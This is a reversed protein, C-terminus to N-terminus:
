RPLGVHEFLIRKLEEVAAPDKYSSHDSPVILESAAGEQHSSWYDVVGDSSDPSDGKGRDGIISHYVVGPLYPSADLAAIMPAGPRLSQAGTYAGKRFTRLAPSTILHPDFLLHSTTVVDTPLKAARSLLAAFTKEAMTAGRHPTSFFVARRVAPDPDFFLTERLREKRTPEIRLQDFPTPVEFQEWLRDGIDAVLTHALIGGMSHGVVVMNRSLPDDGEPDLHARLEALQERLLASSEAIPYGSPYAFVMFQYRESLDPESLMHPVIDRWIMPVSILGHVLLVPIRDEDYPGTLYIGAVESRTAAKFFGKLGLAVESQQDLIVAIPASYDAALPFGRSGVSSTRERLPDRLSLAIQLTGDASVATRDITMTVPVHLGRVPYFRMEGRREPRHERIGVLAAGIGERTQRDVGKEKLSLAAVAHDFYGGPYASRDAIRVEMPVEDCTFRNQPGLEIWLEAFRALSRNHLDVLCREVESGPVAAGSALQRHADVASKLYSAAAAAPARRESAKADRLLSRGNEAFAALPGAVSSLLDVSRLAERTTSVTDTRVKVTSCASLAGLAALAAALRPIPALLRPLSAMISAWQM